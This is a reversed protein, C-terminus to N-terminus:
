KAGVVMVNNWVELKQRLTSQKCFCFSGKWFETIIHIGIIIQTLIGPKILANFPTDFAALM